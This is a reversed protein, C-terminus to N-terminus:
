RRGKPPAAKGQKDVARAKLIGQSPAGGGAPAGDGEDGGKDEDEADPEEGGEGGDEEAEVIEVTSEDADVIRAEAGDGDPQGPAGARAQRLRRKARASAKSLVEDDDAEGEARRILDEVTPMPKLAAKPDFARYRWLKLAAGITVTLPLSMVMYLIVWYPFGFSGHLPWSAAWPLSIATVQVSKSLFVNLWGFVALAVVMTGVAPRMTAYNAEMTQSMVFPQARKLRETRDVDRKLRAESLEKQFSKQMIRGRELAIYDSSWHRLGTSLVGTLAGAFFVSIVPLHGGFGITPNLVFSMGAGLAASLAPDIMIFLMLMMTLLMYTQGKPAPPAKARRNQGLAGM